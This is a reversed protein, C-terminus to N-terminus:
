PTISEGGNVTALAALVEDSGYAFHRVSGDALLFNSGQLHWSWFHFTGCPGGQFAAQFPFPGRPCADLPQISSTQLNIERVGLIVDCSGTDGQGPGAFWWGFHSEPIRPREGVMLTNSAGDAIDSLKTGQSSVAVARTQKSGDYKNTGVFIGPLDAPHQPQLSWAFVSTGSVGLYNGLAVELGSGDKVFEGGGDAPCSYIKLSTRLAVYRGSSDWPFWNNQIPDRYANDIPLPSAGNETAETQRWLADQELYPLLTAQWSLFTYIQRPSGARYNRTGPPFMLQSSHYGHLALGIQRLNNQCETRVAAMRAQQIAVVLLSALVALIAIVLILELLTFGRYAPIRGQYLTM